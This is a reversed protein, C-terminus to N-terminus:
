LPRSFAIYTCTATRVGRCVPSFFYFWNCDGYPKLYDVSISSYAVPLTEVLIIGFLRLLLARLQGRLFGRILSRGWDSSSYRQHSIYHLHRHSSFNYSFLVTPLQYDTVFLNFLIYERRPGAKIGGQDRVPRGRELFM